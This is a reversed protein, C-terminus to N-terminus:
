RQWKLVTRNSNIAVPILLSRSMEFRVEAKTSKRKIRKSVASKSTIIGSFECRESDEGGSAILYICIMENMKWAAM